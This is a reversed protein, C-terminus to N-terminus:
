QMMNFWISCLWIKNSRIPNCTIYNSKIGNYQIVHFRILNSKIRNSQMKNSIIPDNPNVCTIDRTITNFMDCLMTHICVIFCCISNEFRIWHCWAAFLGCCDAPSDLGFQGSSRSWGTASLFYKITFLFWKNQKYFISVSLCSIVLQTKVAKNLLQWCDSDM